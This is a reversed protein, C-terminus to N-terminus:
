VKVLLLATGSRPQTQDPVESGLDYHGWDTQFLEAAAPSTWLAGALLTIAAFWRTHRSPLSM